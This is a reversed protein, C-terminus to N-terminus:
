MVVLSRSGTEMFYNRYMKLDNQNVSVISEYTMRRKLEENAAWQGSGFFHLQFFIDNSDISDLLRDFHGIIDIIILEFHNAADTRSLHLAFVGFLLFKLHVTCHHVCLLWYICPIRYRPMEKSRRKM